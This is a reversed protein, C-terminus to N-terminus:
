ATVSAMVRELAVQVKSAVGELKPNGAEESVTKPHITSVEIGGNLYAAASTNSRECIQPLDATRGGRGGRTRRWSPM